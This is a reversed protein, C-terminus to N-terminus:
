IVLQSGHPCIGVSVREVSWFRLVLTSAMNFTPDEASQTSLRCGTNTSLPLSLTSENEGIM